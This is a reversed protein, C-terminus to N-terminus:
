VEQEPKPFRLETVLGNKAWERTVAGGISRALHEVMETGFGRDRAPEPVPAECVESWKLAVCGGEVPWTIHVTGGDASFAGYKISNTALEHLFLILPTLRARPVACPPGEARYKNEFPRLVSSVVLGIDVHDLDINGISSPEFVADSVRSFSALKERLLRPVDANQSAEKESLSILGFVVAFLNKVRHRMEQALLQEREIAEELKRELLTKVTVDRSVCLIIQVKGADDAVPTLLNDWYRTEGGMESKGPFRATRGHRAEELAQAGAAHVVSPLLPLWPMGFASDEPVGLAICGARNMTMLRGDVTIVKICDVSADLMAREFSLGQDLTTPIGHPFVLDKVARAVREM